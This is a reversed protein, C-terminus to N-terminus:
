EEKLDSESGCAISKWKQMVATFEEPTIEEFSPFEGALHLLYYMASRWLEFRSSTVEVPISHERLLPVVKEWFPAYDAEAFPLYKIVKKGTKRKRKSKPVLALVEERNSKKKKATM